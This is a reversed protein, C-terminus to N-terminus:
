SFVLQVGPLPFALLWNSCLVGPESIEMRLQDARTPDEIFVLNVAESVFWPPCVLQIQAKPFFTFDPLVPATKM